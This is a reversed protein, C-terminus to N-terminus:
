PGGKERAAGGLGKKEGQSIRQDYNAPTPLGHPYLPLPPVSRDKKSVCRIKKTDQAEVRSM